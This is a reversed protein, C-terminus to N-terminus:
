HVTGSAGLQFHSRFYIVRRELDRITPANPMLELWYRQAAQWLDDEDGGVIPRLEIVPLDGQRIAPRSTKGAQDHPRRPTASSQPRQCRPPGGGYLAVLPRKGQRDVTMKLRKYTGM